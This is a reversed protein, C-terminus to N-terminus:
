IWHNAHFLTRALRAPQPSGIELGRAVHFSAQGDAGVEAVGIGFWADGVARGVALATSNITGFSPEDWGEPLLSVRLAGRQDPTPDHPNDAAWFGVADKADPHDRRVDGLVTRAVILARRDWLRPMRNKLPNLWPKDIGESLRMRMITPDTAAYEGINQWATPITAGTWWQVVTDVAGKGFLELSRRHLKEVTDLLGKRFIPKAM